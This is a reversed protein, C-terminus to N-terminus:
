KTAEVVLSELRRAETDILLTPNRGRSFECRQIHSFSCTRLLLALCDYDYAYRHGYNRFIANVPMIPSFFSQNVQSPQGDPFTPQMGVKWECYLRIYLEADPVVIRLTAGPKLIRYLDLLLRQAGGFSLHELCHETFVGEISSPPFPLANTELDWCLDVGPVWNYDLNIFAPNHQEGCGINLFPKAILWKRRFQLPNGRIANSYIRQVKSYSTLSRSFSLKTHRFDM